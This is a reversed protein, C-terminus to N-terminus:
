HAAHENRSRRSVYNVYMVGAVAAFIWWQWAWGLHGGESLDFEPETRYPLDTNGESGPLQLLYVPLLRYPMQAQMASIDVRYWAQQPTPVPEGARAPLEESPRLFGSVTLPGTQDFQAWNDSAALKDPIWGRDVLIAQTGGPMVLPAILHIGAMADFNQVKLAMQRSLDFTGSAVARRYRIHSLDAPLPERDLSLPPAAILQTIEANQAQRQHLRDIQWFGLRVFVAMMAIVLLTTLWTRRAFLFSLKM